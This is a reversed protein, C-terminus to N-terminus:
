KDEGLRYKLEELVKRVEQMEKSDTIPRYPTYHDILKDIEEKLEEIWKQIIKDASSCSVRDADISKGQQSHNQILNDPSKIPKKHNNEEVLKEANRDLIIQRYNKIQCIPFMTCHDKM